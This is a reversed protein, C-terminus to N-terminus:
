QAMLCLFGKGIHLVIMGATFKQALLLVNSFSGFWDPLTAADSSLMISSCGTVNVNFASSNFNTCYDQLMYGFCALCSCITLSFKLLFCFLFYHQTKKPIATLNKGTAMSMISIHPPKGLLSVSLLPYCFCSLWLIDTTSLIPPLQVLCSFFQIIVLALQCQLLFLFCKRIGYTAHRAQEILRIIGITEEPYISLSCSLSNLQGSLQLPTLEESLHTMNTSTAYGFTEWSCRSPYLPDLAISIDSQLFLGNNRLNASSGLCCTVEGYEQMIKIMECMTEPTCDTFLPVLLPVNDINQLHPRVQHIGRPLKARNCDELFSPIDSDTPQFSILDSHGEEEM